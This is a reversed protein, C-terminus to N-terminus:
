SNLKNKIREGEIATKGQARGTEYEARYTNPQRDLIDTEETQRDHRFM